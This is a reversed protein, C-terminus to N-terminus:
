GCIDGELLSGRIILGSGIGEIVKDGVELAINVLYIFCSSIASLTSNLIKPSKKPHEPLESSSASGFILLPAISM